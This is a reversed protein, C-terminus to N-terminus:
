GVSLMGEVRRYLVGLLSSGFASGLWLLWLLLSRRDLLMRRTEMM